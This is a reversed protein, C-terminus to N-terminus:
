FLQPQLIRQEINQCVIAAIEGDIVSGERVSNAEWGNIKRVDFRYDGKYFVGYHLAKMVHPVVWVNFSEKESKLRVCIPPKAPLFGCFANLDNRIAKAYPSALKEDYWKGGEIPAVFSASHGDSFHIHYIFQLGNDEQHTIKAKLKKGEVECDFVIEPDITTINECDVTLLDVVTTQMVLIPKTLSLYVLIGFHKAFQVLKKPYFKENGVMFLM